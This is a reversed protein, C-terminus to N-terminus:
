TQDEGGFIIEAENIAKQLESEYHSKDMEWDSKEKQLEEIAKNKEGVKMLLLKFEREASAIKAQTEKLGYELELIDSKASKIKEDISGIISEREELNRVADEHKDLIKKTKMLDPVLMNAIERTSTKQNSSNEDDSDNTKNEFHSQSSTYLHDKSKEHKLSHRHICNDRDQISYGLEILRMEGRETIRYGSYAKKRRKSGISQNSIVRELYKAKKCMAMMLSRMFGHKTKYEDSMESVFDRVNLKKMIAVSADTRKAYGRVSVDKLAKLATDMIDWDTPLSGVSLVLRMNDTVDSSGESIVEDNRTSQDKGLAGRERARLWDVPKPVPPNFKPLSRPRLPNWKPSKMAPSESNPSDSESPFLPLVLKDIKPPDFKRGARSYFSKRLLNSENIKMTYPNMRSLLSFAIEVEEVSPGFLSYEFATDNGNPRCRLRISKTGHKEEVRLAVLRHCGRKKIRNPDNLFWNGEMGAEKLAMEVLARTPSEIDKVSKIQCRFEVKLLRNEECVIEDGVTSKM